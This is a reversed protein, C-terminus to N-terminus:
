FVVKGTLASQICAPTRRLVPEVDYAGVINAVKASNTVITRWGHKKQIRDLTMLYFCVGELIIGGARRITEAYGLKEALQLYGHNTTIVLATNPHVRQGDLAEALLRLEYLSQQPGSFVIVDAHDSHAGYSGYLAELDKDEVTFRQRPCQPGFAQDLTQAEPTLGEIGFMAISGYSALAAAMHKLQDSTPRETIGTLIPVEFYNGCRRGVVAGLAGWDAFDSMTATVDVQTTGRRVETRHFGYYPVRGTLAAALSASGAEFNSRSGFVSNSYCVTGTDGWAVHEGFHPQYTAQYPICTNVVMAGMQSLYKNVQLQRAAMAEDQDFFLRYAPDVFQSNTTTPVRFRTTNEQSFQEVLAYGAAGMIEVDVVIHANTVPVFHRAGFFEGAQLQVEMAWKVAPGEAGALMREEESTLRM